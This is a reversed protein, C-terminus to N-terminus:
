FCWGGSIQCFQQNPYNPVGCVYHHQDCQALNLLQVKSQTVFMLNFKDDNRCTQLVRDLLEFPLDLFMAISDQGLAVVLTEKFALNYAENFVKSDYTPDM